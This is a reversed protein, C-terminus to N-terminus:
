TTLNTTYLVYLENMWFGNQENFNNGVEAAFMLSPLQGYDWNIRLRLQCTKRRNVPLPCEILWLDTCSWDVIFASAATAAKSFHKSVSAFSRSGPLTAGVKNALFTILLSDIRSALAIFRRSVRRSFILVSGLTNETMHWTKSSFPTEATVTRLPVIYTAKICIVAFHRICLMYM